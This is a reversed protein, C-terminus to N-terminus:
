ESSHVGWLLDGVGPKYDWEQWKFAGRHGPIEYHGTQSHSIGVRYLSHASVGWAPSCHPGSLCTYRLARGTVCSISLLHCSSEWTIEISSIFTFSFIHFAHKYWCSLFARSFLFRNKLYFNILISFSILIWSCLHVPNFHAGATETVSDTPRSEWDKTLHTGMIRIWDCKTIIWPCKGTETQCMSLM